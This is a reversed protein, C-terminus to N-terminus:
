APVPSDITDVALMAETPSISAWGISTRLSWRYLDHAPDYIAVADGTEPIIGLAEFAAGPTAPEKALVEWRLIADLIFPTEVM